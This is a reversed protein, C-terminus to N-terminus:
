PWPTDTPWARECPLDGPCLFGVGEEEALLLCDVACACILPRPARVILGVSARLSFRKDM